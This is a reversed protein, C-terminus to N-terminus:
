FAPVSANKSTGFSDFTGSELSHIKEIKFFRKYVNKNSGSQLLVFPNDISSQLMNTRYKKKNEQSISGRKVLRNFKSNSLKPQIRSTRVFSSCNEPIPSIAFITCSEISQMPESNLVKELDEKSGHLRIIRGLTLNFEPFSVGISSSNISVLANHVQNYAKNLFRNSKEKANIKINLYYNM